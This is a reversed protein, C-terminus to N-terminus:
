PILQIITKKTKGLKVQIGMVDIPQYGTADCHITYIGIPIPKFLAIGSVNTQKTLNLPLVIVHADSILAKNNKDRVTIMLGTHTHSNDVILRANLYTSVFDPHAAKFVPIINDLQNNFIDSAQKIATKINARYTKRLAQANRPKPVAANYTTIATSIGSILAATVGYPTLAATNANAINIINQCTNTLQTDKIRYLNSYSFNVSQYLTNNAIATAYAKILDAVDASQHCLDKKATTKDMAIGIILQAELAANSQIITVKGKAATVQTTFPVNAATIAANDDIVKLSTLFMNLQAEQRALM